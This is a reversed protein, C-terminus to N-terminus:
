GTPGGLEELYRELAQQRRHSGDIEGQLRAVEELQEERDDEPTLDAAFEELWSEGGDGNAADAFPEASDFMASRVLEVDGADMTAFAEEDVSPGELDAATEELQARLMSERGREFELTDLV